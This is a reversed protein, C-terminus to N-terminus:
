RSLGEALRPIFLWQLRGLGPRVESWREAELELAALGATTLRLSGGCLLSLWEELGPNHGIVLLPDCRDDQEGLVVGLVQPPALYLRQDFVLVGSDLVTGLGEATERARAAPSSLILRPGEELTGLLRALQPVDRRGRKNLPRDFDAQAASWDSKAHRMVLLTKM